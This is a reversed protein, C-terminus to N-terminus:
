SDVNVNPISQSEQDNVNAPGLIEANSMDPTHMTFQLGDQCYKQLKEHHSINFVKILTGVVKIGLVKIGLVLVVPEMFLLCKMANRSDAM